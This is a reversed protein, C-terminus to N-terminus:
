CLGVMYRDMKRSLSVVFIPVLQQECRWRRCVSGAVDKSLQIEERIQLVGHVVRRHADIRCCADIQRATTPELVLLRPETGLGVM